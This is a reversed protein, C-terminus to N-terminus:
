KTEISIVRLVQISQAKGAMHVDRTEIVVEILTGTTLTGGANRQFEVLLRQKDSKIIKFRTFGCGEDGPCEIWNGNRKLKSFDFQNRNKVVADLNVETVVPQDADSDWSTVMEFVRPHIRGVVALADTESADVTVATSVCIAVLFLTLFKTM